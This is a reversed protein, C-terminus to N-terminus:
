RCAGCKWWITWPVDRKVDFDPIVRMPGAARILPRSFRVPISRFEAPHVLADRPVPVQRGALRIKSSTDKVNDPTVLFCPIYQTVCQEKTPDAKWGEQVSKVALEGCAVGIGINDQGVTAALGGESVSVKAGQVADTGVVMIQDQKGANVVAELVGLAMTDNACYFAKLEPYTTMINMALDMAVLRDWDGPQSAVLEIGETAEFVSKAGATRNNSTVNGATGEIIAVQGKGIKDVIFQAGTKGVVLNDTTYHGAMNGGGAVVQALDINEDVNVM